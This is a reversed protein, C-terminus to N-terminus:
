PNRRKQDRNHNYLVVVGQIVIDATYGRLHPHGCLCKKPPEEGLTTLAEANCKYCQRYAYVIDEATLSEDLDFILVVGMGLYQREYAEKLAVVAGYYEDIIM